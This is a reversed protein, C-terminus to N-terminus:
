PPDPFQPAPEPEPQQLRVQPRGLPGVLQLVVARDENAQRRVLELKLDAAWILLDVEGVLRGEVGDLALQVSDASAIGRKVQFSGALRDLTIPETPDGPQRRDPPRHDPGGPLARLAERLEVGDVGALRGDRVTVDVRGILSRVLERLSSGAATAELYLDASGQVVPALDLWEGLRTPDIARLDVAIALFPLRRRADLLAQIEVDGGWLSATLEDVMLRRDELRATLQLGPGVLGGKASLELEGDLENMWALLLADRPWDGVPPEQMLPPQLRMGTLSALALLDEAQPEGLSLQASVRPRGPTARWGVRGTLSTTGLRASGVVTTGAGPARQLKGTLSFAKSEGEGSNGYVVGLKRLLQPLDPHGADLALDYRPEGEAWGAQGSVALRAAEHRLELDLAFAELTGRASGRLALPTLRALILPPDAGLRRLLSTPREATLSAALEFSGGELDIEGSLRMRAEAASQLVLEEVTVRGAVARADLIVQELHQGGAILRGIEAELALDLDGLWRRLAATLGDPGWERRYVDLNLRDAALVAAIQRRPGFGIAASGTVRTADLRIEAEALRVSDRDVSLAGSLSLTRLRDEPVGTPRIGLWALSGRPDDTVATLTGHLEPDTIDAVLVGTFSVDAQGPLLARAQEVTLRGSGSLLLTARLRRVVGERYGLADAALDVKGSLEPPLAAAVALGLDQVDPRDPLEIRDLNVVLDIKPENAIALDLQGTAEHGAIELRAQDLRLRDGGFRLRAELRLPAGAWPPLSPPPRGATEGLMAIAARADDAHLALDGELQPLHEPWSVLGRFSASATTNESPASVSLQLSASAADGIRGLRAEFAFPQGAIGLEGDIAYPGRQGEAMLEFAVQEVAAAETGDAHRLAVRGDIVTLESPRQPDDPLPAFEPFGDPTGDPAARLYLVPRVLRVEDVQLEGRLLPLAELQLDLREIELVPDGPTPGLSTDAVSLTPQPLLRFDIRGRIAVKQGTLAEARRSLGERYDEWAVLHPVVLLGGVLLALVLALVFLAIRL